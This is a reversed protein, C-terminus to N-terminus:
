INKEQCYSVQCLSGIISNFTYKLKLCIIEIGKLMHLIMEKRFSCMRTDGLYIVEIKGSHNRLFDVRKTTSM